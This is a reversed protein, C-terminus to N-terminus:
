LDSSYIFCQKNATTRSSDHIIIPQLVVASHLQLASFTFSLELNFTKSYRRLKRLAKDLHFCILIEMQIFVVLLLVQEYARVEIFWGIFM